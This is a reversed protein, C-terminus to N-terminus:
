SFAQLLWLMVLGLVMSLLGMKRIQQDDLQLLQAFLSRWGQPHIAPLLGELVLVLALAIWFADPM